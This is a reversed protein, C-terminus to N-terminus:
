GRAVSPQCRSAAPPFISCKRGSGDFDDPRADGEQVGLSLRQDAARSRNTQGNSAATSRALAEAGSGSREAFFEDRSCGWGMRVGMFNGERVVVSRRIAATIVKEVASWACVAGAAFRPLIRRFSVVTRVNGFDWVTRHAFQWPAFQPPRGPAWCARHHRPGRRCLHRGRACCGRPNGRWRSAAKRGARSRVGSIRPSTM